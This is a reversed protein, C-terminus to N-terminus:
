VSSTPATKGPTSKIVYYSADLGDVLVSVETGKWHAVVTWNPKWLPRCSESEVLDFRQGVKVKRMLTTAAAHRATNRAQADTIKHRSWDLKESMDADIPEPRDWPPSIFASGGLNDVLTRIKTAGPFRKNSYQVTWVIATFPHHDQDVRQLEARPLRSAIVKWAEAASVSPPLALTETM